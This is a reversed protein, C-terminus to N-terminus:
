FPRNFLQVKVGTFSQVYEVIMAACDPADDHKNKGMMTYSCLQGVFRKYEKNGKIVSDDKILFHEQFFPQAVIIRTAKDKQNYKTTIKTVGGREKIREQLNVAVRGGAANSEIRCMHVKNRLLAELFKSEVIDLKSNDCVVDEVYYDQGYQYAIIMVGFDEGRDKTDCAAIIADPEREPLEFYRRLEEASYLLGLREVPEGLYLARWSADDYSREIDELMEKTYGLGYPYDFNSNGDEDLAPVNIFMARPDNDYLEQLHGVVDNVSWRTQVHIERVRNGLKRQRYDITYAQWLKNMRDISLAQEIGECLDDLILYATARVKGAMGSGVSSLEITEFRKPRGLDIRLSKANQKCVNVTQFVDAWRYEGDYRFIRLCEDYVGRLFEANHSGMLNQLEPHLGSVWCLFFIELTSKGTGPPMSIALLDLENDELKQMAKVIPLLQKRRPEYFKNRVPRDKEIYRCFADFDHPAALRLSEWYVREADPDGKKMLSVCGRRILLMYDLAKKLNESNNECSVVEGTASDVVEDADQMMLEKALTLADRLEEVGGVNVLKTILRENSMAKGDLISYHVWLITFTDWLRVNKM